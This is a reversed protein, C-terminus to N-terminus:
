PVVIRAETVTSHRGMMAGRLAGVAVRPDEPHVAAMFTERTLPVDNALGFMARCHETTWLENTTRDFQWLGVNASAATFTMREESEKLSTEAQRRRRHQFLLAAVVLSQLGVVLATGLVLNRHQNWVTPEEFLVISGPPLNRDKLGWRGMAGADVRFTLGPNVRPPLTAVDAGSLIEIVM